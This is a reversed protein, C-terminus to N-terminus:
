YSECAQDNNRLLLDGRDSYVRISLCQKFHTEQFSSMEMGIELCSVIEGRKWSRNNSLYTVQKIKKLLIENSLVAQLFTRNIPSLLLSLISLPHDNPVFLASYLTGQSCTGQKNELFKCSSFMYSVKACKEM